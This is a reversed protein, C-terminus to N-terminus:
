HLDFETIVARDEVPPSSLEQIQGKHNIEYFRTDTMTYSIIENDEYGFEGIDNKWEMEFDKLCYAGNDLLEFTTAHQYGKTAIPMSGFKNQKGKQNGIQIAKGNLDFIKVVYSLPAHGYRMKSLYIVAVHNETPYYRAVPYIEPPGMRSIKFRRSGFVFKDLLDNNTVKKEAEFERERFSIELSALDLSKPKDVKNFHSLFKAFDNKYNEHKQNKSTVFSCFTFALIALISLQKIVKINM